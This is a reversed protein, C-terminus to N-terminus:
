NCTYSLNKLAPGDSFIALESKNELIMKLGGEENFFLDQKFLTSNTAYYNGNLNFAQVTKISIINNLTNKFLITNPYPLFNHSINEQQDTTIILDINNSNNAFTLQCGSINYNSFVFNDLTFNPKNLDGSKIIKVLKNQDFEYEYTIVFPFNNSFGTEYIKKIKKHEYNLSYTSKPLLRNSIEQYEIRGVLGDPTYLITDMAFFKNTELDKYLKFKLEGSQNYNYNVKTTKLNEFATIESLTCRQYFPEPIFNVGEKQCSFFLGFLILLYVKNLKM